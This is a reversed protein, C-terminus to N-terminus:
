TRPWKSLDLQVGQPPSLVRFDCTVNAIRLFEGLWVTFPLQRDDVEAEMHPWRQWHTGGVNAPVLLNRHGRAPNVDLALVRQNRFILSFGYKPPIRVRHGTLVIRGRLRTGPAVVTMRAEAYDGHTMSRWRPATVAVKAVALFEAVANDFRSLRGGASRAPYEVM